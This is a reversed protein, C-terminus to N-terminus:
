FNVEAPDLHPHFHMKCTQRRYLALLKEYSKFLWTAFRLSLTSGAEKVAISTHLFHKSIVRFKLLFSRTHFFASAGRHHCYKSDQEKPAVMRQSIVALFEKAATFHHLMAPTM